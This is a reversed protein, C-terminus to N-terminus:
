CQKSGSRYNELTTCDPYGCYRGSLKDCGARKHKDCGFVPDTKKMRLILVLLLASFIGILGGLWM